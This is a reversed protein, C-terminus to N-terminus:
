QCLETSLEIQFDEKTLVAQSAGSDGESDIALPVHKDDIQRKWTESDSHPIPNLLHISM